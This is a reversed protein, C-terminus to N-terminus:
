AVIASGIAQHSHHRCVEEEEQVVEQWLCLVRWPQLGLASWHVIYWVCAVVM